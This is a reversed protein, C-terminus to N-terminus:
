EGSAGTSKWLFITRPSRPICPLGMKLCATWCAFHGKQCSNEIDYLGCFSCGSFSHLSFLVMGSIKKGASRCVLWTAWEVWFFATCSRSTGIWRDAWDQWSCTSPGALITFKGYAEVIVTSTICFGFCLHEDLSDAVYVSCMWVSWLTPSLWCRRRQWAKLPRYVLILVDILPDTVKLM